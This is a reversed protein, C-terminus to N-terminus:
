VPRVRATYARTHRTVNFNEWRTIPPGPDHVLLGRWRSVPLVNTITYGAITRSHGPIFSIMPRNARIQSVFQDWGPAAIMTADLKTSTLREIARVVDEARLDPLPRPNSLTGLELATALRTQEFEFHHFDLLMQVSAPVCWVKTQQSHMRCPPRLERTDTSIPATVPPPSDSRPKLLRKEIKFWGEDDRESIIPELEAVRKTFRSRRTRAASPDLEELFSWREFNAPPEGKSRERAPPVPEWTYLELLAIEDGDSLFQVAIKPFSFAVFRASDFQKGPFRTGLAAAAQDLLADEDWESTASVAVLPAGLRPDAAIDAFATGQPLDIPFRQFLLEGNLDYVDTPDRDMVAGELPVVDAYNLMNLEIWALARPSTNGTAM